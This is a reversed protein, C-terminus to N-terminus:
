RSASASPALAAPTAAGAPESAAPAAGSVPGGAAAPRNGQPPRGLEIVRLATGDRQLRQHGAVVVSQGEELGSVIEVRGGRRVGLRVEQRQSVFKVEAPLKSKDVSPVQDPAVAKVVFQRGGQPVISEEPVVLASDNVSFVINVRAFMGPRLPSPNGGGASPGALGGTRGSGAGSGGGSSAGGGAGAGAPRRNATAAPAGDAAAQAAVTSPDVPCGSADLTPVSPASGAGSSAAPRGAGPRAGQVRAASQGPPGGAGAGAPPKAGGTATAGPQGGPRGGAAGSGSAGPGGPGGPGARGTERAPEGMNNPLIARVGVSRGNADFLPDIAEVRAKFSRGPVADLALDVVQQLKLKGQFREPLRFDVYMSGIDELNILDAGDKVFDGINVNRIGVTGDFPALVAMRSLRACSLALQAEAVQLNAATEELVRQAVFNQAVLEQNRKLNAQAISVQARAQKIEARQLVDDLQVLVQGKRVRQGDTFGLQKIRGPVEPRLMVSQRSRLSGVSQADDQLVMREVKAVEVGAPRAAAGSAASAPAPAAGSGSGGGQAGVASGAEIPGKPKSQYWWAAGSAAAIGIVATISYIAKSAMFDQIPQPASEKTQWAPFHLIYCDQSL